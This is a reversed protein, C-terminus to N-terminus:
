DADAELVRLRAAIAADLRECAARALAADATAKDATVEREKAGLSPPYRLRVAYPTLRDVEGLSEALRRDLRHLQGLLVGVAHTDEPQVDYSILVAKLLKEVAQQAHFGLARPLGEAGLVRMAGRDEQASQIWRRVVEALRQSRTGM